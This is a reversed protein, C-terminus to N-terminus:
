SRRVVDLLDEGPRGADCAKWGLLDPREGFLVITKGDRPAGPQLGGHVRWGAAAGRKLAAAPAVLGPKGSDRVRRAAARCAPYTDLGGLLTPGPLRSTPLSADGIEVAWLARAICAVDDRHTIEEHRLFEAWAGDPTDSLYQTPPDGADHWRAPPQGRGEWLFPFRRDAHRYAIV